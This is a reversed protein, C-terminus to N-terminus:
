VSMINQGLDRTFDEVRSFRHDWSHVFLRIQGYCTEEEADGVVSFYIGEGGGGGGGRGREGGGGKKVRVACFGNGRLEQCLVIKDGLSLGLSM